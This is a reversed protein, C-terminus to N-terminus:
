QNNNQSQKAISSLKKKHLLRFIPSPVLGLIIPKIVYIYSKISLNFTHLIRLKLKAENIRFKFKKRKVANRDDRMSYLVEPINYGICGNAYLRIWLDYDEIREIPKAIDYGNLKQLVEKRMMCSAHCFPTAFILEQKTPIKSYSQVGYTGNEDFFDMWTSVVAYEPNNDLIDVEKEFRTASCFDDGDMRATYKGRAHKLCNNLTSALGVNAKNKILVIRSDKNAIETAIEYTNDTSGDDCM